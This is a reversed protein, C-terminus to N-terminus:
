AALEDELGLEGRMWALDAFPQGRRRARDAGNEIGRVLRVVDSRREGVAAERPTNGNLQPHPVDLWRRMRDTMFDGVVHREDSPSLDAPYGDGRRPEPRQDALRREINVVSRDAFEVVGEFDAEIARDLREESMAEVRLRRGEIRVTAVPVTDPDGVASAEFVIAGAPLEPRDKVLAERPVTIDIELPDGPGLGGLARFRNRASRVDPVKWSAPAEAVPDGELTFFSPEVDWSPPRFRMLELAHNRLARATAADGARSGRAAGALRELEALLDPEDAPELFRTPGM